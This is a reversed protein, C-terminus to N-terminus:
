CKDAEDNHKTRKVDRQAPRWINVRLSARRIAAFIALSGSSNRFGYDSCHFQQPENAAMLPEGSAVPKKAFSQTHSHSLIYKVAGGFNSIARSTIFSSIMRRGRRESYKVRANDARTQQTDLASAFFFGGGGSGGNGNGNHKVLKALTNRPWVM